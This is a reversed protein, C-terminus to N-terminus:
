FAYLLHICFNIRFAEGTFLDTRLFLSEGEKVTVIKTRGGQERINDYATMGSSVEFKSYHRHSHAENINGALRRYLRIMVAEGQFLHSYLDWSVVYQGGVESKWEGSALDFTGLGHSLSLSDYTITSNPLIWKSQYACHASQKELRAVKEEMYQFAQGLKRLASPLPYFRLHASWGSPGVNTEARVDCQYMTGMELGSLRISTDNGETCVSELYHEFEPQFCTVTYNAVIIHDPLPPAEWFLNAWTSSFQGLRLGTPHLNTLPVNWANTWEMKRLKEVSALPQNKGEDPSTQKVKAIFMKAMEERRKAEVLESRTRYMENGLSSQINELNEEGDKDKGEDERKVEKEAEDDGAEEGGEREESEKGENEENEDSDEHEQSDELRAEVKITDKVEEGKEHEDEKKDDLQVYEPKKMEQEESVSEQEEEDDGGETLGSYGAGNDDYIGSGVDTDELEKFGKLFNTDDALGVKLFLLLLLRSVVKVKM